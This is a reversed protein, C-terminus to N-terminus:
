IIPFHIVIPLGYNKLFDFEEFKERWEDESLLSVHDKAGDEKLDLGAAFNIGGYETLIFRNHTDAGAIKELLIVDLKVNDPLYKPLKMKLDNIRADKTQGSPSLSACYKINASKDILGLLNKLNKGFAAQNGSSSFFYPDVFIVKKAYKLLGVTVERFGDETRPMLKSTPCKFQPYNKILTNDDFIIIYKTEGYTHEIPTIITHFKKVCNVANELWEKSDDYTRGSKVFIFKSKKAETLWSIIEAKQLGDPMDKLLEYVLSVWKKPFESIVRGEFFSFKDSLIRFNQFNTFLQPDLAFERIM